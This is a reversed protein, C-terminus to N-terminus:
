RLQTEFIKIGLINDVYGFSNRQIPPNHDMIQMTQKEVGYLSTFHIEFQFINPYHIQNKVWIRNKWEFHIYGIRETLIEVKM